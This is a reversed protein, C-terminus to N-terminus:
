KPLSTRREANPTLLCRSIVDTGNRSHTFVKLRLFELSGVDFTAGDNRRRAENQPPQGETLIREGDQRARRRVDFIAMLRM